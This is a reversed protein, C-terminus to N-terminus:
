VQRRGRAGVGALGRVPQGTGSRSDSVDKKSTSRKMAKTNKVINADNTANADNMANTDNVVSAANAAADISGDVEQNRAGPRAPPNATYDEDRRWLIYGISCLHHAVTIYGRNRDRQGGNTRRDFIEKFRGGKRVAGHAAEIWAWKLMLRGAHGVHRGIPTSGDQEGSDDCMPALCCYKALARSNPFREIQGIEALITYALIWSVGPLTMLRRAAPSKRVQKRFERTARAIQRRVHALLELYGRLVEKSGSRLAPDQKQNEEQKQNEDGCLEELFKWGAVGFLDSMPAIVGHRNLLAHIQNKLSTQIRVLSMRHRLWERQDRVQQPALWIEWWRELEDWVQSLLDADRKNTKPLGRAVRWGAVKKGSALHPELGAGALEDSMWGWAYTGELVVPTGKPYAKLRRRMEQRDVHDLKERLVVKGVADRGSITSFKKHCDLGLQTVRLAIGM